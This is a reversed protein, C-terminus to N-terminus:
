FGGQLKTQKQKEPVTQTPTILNTTPMARFKKVNKELHHRLIHVFWEKPEPPVGFGISSRECSGNLNTEFKYDNKLVNSTGSQQYLQM